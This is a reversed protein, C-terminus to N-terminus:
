ETPKAVAKKTRVAKEVTVPLSASEREIVQEAFGAAILRAAELGHAIDGVAYGPDGAMCITLRAQM